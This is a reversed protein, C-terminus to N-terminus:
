VEIELIKYEKNVTLKSIQLEKINENLQTPKTDAVLYDSYLTLDKDLRIFLKDSPRYVKVIGGIELWNIILKTKVRM